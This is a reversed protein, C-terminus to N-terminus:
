LLELELGPSINSYPGIGLFEFPCFGITRTKPPNPSYSSASPPINSSRRHPNSPASTALDPKSRV